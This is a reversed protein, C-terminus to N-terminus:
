CMVQTHHNLLVRVPRTTPDGVKRVWEWTCMLWKFIAGQWPWCPRRQVVGLSWSNGGVGEGHAVASGSTMAPFCDQPGWSDKRPRKSAQWAWKLSASPSAPSHRCSLQTHAPNLGPHGSLESALELGAGGDGPRARRDGPAGHPVGGPSASTGVTPPLAPHTGRPRPHWATSGTQGDRAM